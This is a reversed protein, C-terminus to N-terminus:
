SVAELEPIDDEMNEDIPSLIELGCTVVYPINWFILSDILHQTLPFDKALFMHKRDDFFLPESFRSGVCLETVKIIKDRELM